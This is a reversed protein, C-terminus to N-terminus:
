DNVNKKLNSIMMFTKTLEEGNYRHYRNYRGNYINKGKYAM